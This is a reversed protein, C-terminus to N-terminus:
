RVRWTRSWTGTSKKAKAWKKPEAKLTATVRLGKYGLTRVAIRGRAGIKPLCYVLDGRNASRNVKCVIKDRDPRAGERIKCDKSTTAKKVLVTIGNRKIRQKGSKADVKIVCAPKAFQNNVSV